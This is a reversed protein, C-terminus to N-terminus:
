HHPRPTTVEPKTIPKQKGLEQPLFRQNEKPYFFRQMIVYRVLERLGSPVRDRVSRILTSFSDCLSLTFAQFPSPKAGGLTLDRYDTLPSPVNLMAGGRGGSQTMAEIEAHGM